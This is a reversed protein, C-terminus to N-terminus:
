WTSGPCIPTRQPDSGGGEPRERPVGPRRRGTYGQRSRESHKIADVTLRAKRLPDAWPTIMAPATAAPSIMTETGIGGNPPGTLLITRGRVEDAVREKSRRRREGRVGGGKEADKDDAGKTPRSYEEWPPCMSAKCAENKLGKEKPLRCLSQKQSPRLSMAFSEPAEADPISSRIPRGERCLTDHQEQKDFRRRRTTPLWLSYLLRSLPIRCSLLAGAASKTTLAGETPM